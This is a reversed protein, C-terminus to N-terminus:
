SSFLLWVLFGIKVFLLCFKFFKRSFFEPFHALQCFFLFSLAIPTPLLVLLLCYLPILHCGQSELCPPSVFSDPLFISVHNIFTNFIVLWDIAVSCYCNKMADSPTSSGCSLLVCRVLARSVKREKKRKNNNNSTQRPRYCKRIYCESSNSEYFKEDLWWKQPLPPFSLALWWM